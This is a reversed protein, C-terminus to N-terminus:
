FATIILILGGISAIVSGILEALAIKENKEKYAIWSKVALFVFLITALIYFLINMFRVTEM